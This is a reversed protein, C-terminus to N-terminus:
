KKKKTEKKKKKSKTSEPKNYGHQEKWEDSTPVYFDNPSMNSYWGYTSKIGEVHTQKIINDIGTFKTIKMFDRTGRSMGNYGARNIQQRPTRGNIGALDISLDIIHGLDDLYSTAVTPSNIVEFITGPWYLGVQETFLRLSVTAADWRAWAKLSKDMNTSDWYILNLMNHEYQPVIKNGDEDKSSILDLVWQPKKNNYTKDKDDDIDGKRAIGLTTLVIMPLVAVIFSIQTITQKLCAKQFDTLENLNERMLLHKINCILKGLGNLFEAYVSGGQLGTQLNNYGFDDNGFKNWFHTSRSEDEIFDTGMGFKEWYNNIMFNRMLAVYSGWVNQQLKAKEMEPLLGNYLHTRDQLIHQVDNELKKTIYQSYEEKPVLIGDKDVTYADRLHINSNYYARLAEKRSYGYKMLTEITKQRGMFKKGTPTDVLRYNNYIAGCIVTNILYDGLTYGGMTINNSILRHLQSFETDKFIESNSKSLQNYQMCAVMWSDVVQSNGLNVLMKPISSLSYGLGVALDRKTFYYQGFAQFASTFFADLYGVQMSLLNAGLMGLSVARKLKKMGQTTRQNLNGFTKQMVSDVTDESTSQSDGFSRDEKGYVLYDLQNQLKTYQKSMINIGSGLAPNVSETISEWLALNDSKTKFNLAMDYFMIVSGIVDSNIKSPDKLRHVWRVPIDNILTGDPRRPLDFNTSADAQTEAESGSWSGWIAYGLNKAFDLTGISRGLIQATTGTVQPMMYKRGTSKNPILSWAEEMLSLIADYLEQYKQVEKFSENTYNKAAESDTRPQITEGSSKDFRPNVYESTEDIESFISSATEEIAKIKRGNYEVYDGKPILLGFISLPTRKKPTEVIFLEDFTQQLNPNQSILPMWLQQIHQLYSKKTGSIPVPITATIADFIGGDQQIGLQDKIQARLAKIENELRNLERWTTSDENIGTGLLRLDPYVLGNKSKLRNIIDRKRSELELLRPTEPISGLESALLDWFEPTIRKSKNTLDFNRVETSDEGYQDVLLQRSQNFKDWNTKYKVKTLLHRNWSTIQKAIELSEGTKLTAILIGDKNVTFIYQSSLERKAKQLERLNQLQTKTLKSLDPYGNQDRVPDQILDMQYQIKNLERMAARSLFRRRQRYYELTYRRNAHEDLWRDLEDMYQNYVSNPDVETDIDPFVTEVENTIPNVRVSIGKDAFEDRLGDEFAAKDKEFQGRNIQSVFNGTPKGDEDFEMFIRQFNFPSMQALDPRIKKYLSILKQGKKLVQRQREANTDAIMRQLVRVISSRSRSAVGINIEGFNLEGLATNQDLYRKIHKLFQESDKVLDENDNIFKEINYYAFKKLVDRNYQDELKSLDVKLQALLNKLDVANPQQARLKNVKDITSNSDQANFLNDLENLLGKYYGIFDQRVANIFNADWTSPDRSLIDNHIYLMTKSLEEHCNLLFQQITDFADDVSEEDRNRILDLRLKLDNLQRQNSIARKVQSKIRATLGQEIHKVVEKDKSSLFSSSDYKGDIRDYIVQIGQAIQLDEMSLMAYSIGDIISQKDRDTFNSGNLIRRALDTLKAWFDKIYSLLSKNVIRKNVDTSTVLNVLEKELQTSSKTGDDLMKLGSQILDSAWFMRIYDRALEKDFTTLDGNLIANYIANVRSNDNINTSVINYIYDKDATYNDFTKEDLSNIFYEYLSRLEKSFTTPAEFYGRASMQMGYIRSLNSQQEKLRAKIYTKNFQITSATRVRDLADALESGTLNPNNLKFQELANQVFKDRANQIEDYTSYLNESLTQFSPKIGLDSLSPEPRGESIWDGYQNIFQPFYAVLKKIIAQEENNNNDALLQQYLTSPNGYPDKDLTYGNNAALAYYAAGESGLIRGYEALETQYRSKILCVM